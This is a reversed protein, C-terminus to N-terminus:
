FYYSWCSDMWGDICHHKFYKKKIYKLIFIFVIIYIVSFNHERVDTYQKDDILIEKLFNTLHKLIFFYM